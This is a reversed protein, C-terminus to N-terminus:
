PTGSGLEDPLGFYEEVTMSRQEDAVFLPLHSPVVDVGGERRFCQFVPAPPSTTCMEEGVNGSM